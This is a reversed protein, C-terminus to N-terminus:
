QESRLDPLASRLDVNRQETPQWRMGLWLFRPPGKPVHGDFTPNVRLQAGIDGFADPWDNTNDPDWDPDTTLRLYHEQVLRSKGYGTEALVVTMKPGRYHGNAARTAVDDFQQRLHSIEDARGFLPRQHTNNLALQM